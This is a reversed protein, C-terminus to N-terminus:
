LIQQLLIMLLNKAWLNAFVLRSSNSQKKQPLYSVKYQEYYQKLEAHDALMEEEIPPSQSSSSFM